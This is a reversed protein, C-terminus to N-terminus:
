RNNDLNQVFLGQLPRAQELLKSSAHHPIFSRSQAYASFEDLSFTGGRSEETDTMASSACAACLFADGNWTGLGNLPKGCESCRDLDPAIGWCLLWRWFFRASVLEPPVKESLGRLGWYFLALLDNYPYGDLLFRGLSRCWHLACRIASPSQRLKWFDETVDIEKLYTKRRSQYLQYKAWVLPELAGGFRSATKGAGPVYVRVLGSDKLFLLVSLDGEM